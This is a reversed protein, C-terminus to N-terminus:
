CIGEQEAALLAEAHALARKLQAVLETLGAVTLQRRAQMVTLAWQAMSMHGSIRGLHKEALTM